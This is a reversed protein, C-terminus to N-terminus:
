RHISSRSDLRTLDLLILYSKCMANQFFAAFCTLVNVHVATKSQTLGFLFVGSAITFFSLAFKRGGRGWEIAVAALISGPVGCAAQYTYASYAANISDEGVAATKSALYSGLFGNFLPYALGILAYTLIVLSTSWALRKTSFLSSVQKGSFDDFSHKLLEMTSFKTEIAAPDVKESRGDVNKLYPAAAKQLDALTLSCHVKNRKAIKQIVEVAQADKGISSLFKPSEYVPCVFFRIGWLFILLAGLTFYTYRWGM